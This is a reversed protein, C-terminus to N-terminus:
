NDESRWLYWCAITRYPSWKKSAKDLVEANDGRLRPYLRRAARCLAVDGLSVIDTRGMAFMLFMETTWRGIGPTAILSEMIAEDEMTPFDAMPIIGQQVRRAIEGLYKVKNGSLGAARLKEPSAKAMTVADFPSPAVQAVRKEIADAAKVSLQQNIISVTLAHFPPRSKRRYPGYQEILKAMTKDAASLFAEGRRITQPTLTIIKKSM